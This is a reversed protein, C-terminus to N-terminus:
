PILNPNSLFQFLAAGYSIMANVRDPAFLGAIAFSVLVNFLINLWDKRGLRASAETLYKMQRDLIQFQEASMERDQKIHTALMELNQLILGRESTSFPSNELSPELTLTQMPSNKDSASIFLDPLNSTAAIRRVYDQLQSCWASFQEIAHPFLIVPSTSLMRSGPKSFRVVIGGDYTLPSGFDFYEETLKHVLKFGPEADFDPESFGYLKIVNAIEHERERRLVQSLLAEGRKGPM